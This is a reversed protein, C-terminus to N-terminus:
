IRLGLSPYEGFSIAYRIRGLVQHTWVHVSSGPFCYSCHKSALICFAQFVLGVISVHCFYFVDQGIAADDFTLDISFTGREIWDLLPYKFLPEYHDLGFDEKNSADALFKGDLKYQPAPCTLSAACGSSTKTIGPELEDHDGLAGDPGYAFGMPHYWNSVNGQIFTYTEGIKLGITPHVGECEEFYFYGLHGEAFNVGVTFTNNPPICIKQNETTGSVVAVSLVSSVIAVLKFLMVTM